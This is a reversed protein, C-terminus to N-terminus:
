IAGCVDLNLRFSCVQIEGQRSKKQRIDSSAVINTWINMNIAIIAIAGTYEQYFQDPQFRM